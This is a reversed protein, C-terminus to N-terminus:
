KRRSAYKPDIKELEKELEAGIVRYGAANLHVVDRMFKPNALKGNDALLLKGPNTFFVRKGDALKAYRRNAEAITDALAPEKRPYIGILLIKAKPSKKRLLAIFAKMNDACAKASDKRHGINNTGLNVLIVRPSIGKLAGNEARYYANDIYDFGFGMNTVAHDRFLNAWSDPGIAKMKTVPEGGWWHTISDGFFIYDPKIERNRDIVAKQREAWNYSDRQHPESKLTDPLNGAVATLLSLGWLAFFLLTKTKKM